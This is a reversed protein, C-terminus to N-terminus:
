ETVNQSRANNQRFTYYNAYDFNYTKNFFMHIM